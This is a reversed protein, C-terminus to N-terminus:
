ERAYMSQYSLCRGVEVWKYTELWSQWTLGDPLFKACTLKDLESLLEDRDGCWVACVELAEDFWERVDQGWYEQAFSKSPEKDDAFRGRMAKYVRSALKISINTKAYKLLIVDEFANLVEIPVKKSLTEVKPMKYNKLGHFRGCKEFGEPVEKQYAKTTYKLAYGFNDNHYKELSLGRVAFNKRAYEDPYGILEVWASRLKRVFALVKKWGLQKVGWAMVHFHPAGSRQFEMFWLFPMRLGLYKDSYRNMTKTWNELKEKLELGTFKRWYDRDGSMDKGPMTLTIMIEPQVELAELDKCRKALSRYAKSSYSDIESKKAALGPREEGEYKERVAHSMADEFRPSATSPTTDLHLYVSSDDLNHPMPLEHIQSARLSLAAVRDEVSQYKLKKPEKSPFLSHLLDIEAQYNSQNKTDTVNDLILASSYTVNTLTASQSSTTSENGCLGVDGVRGVSPTHPHSPTNKSSDPIYKQSYDFFDNGYSLKRATRGSTRYFQARQKRELVFVDQQKCVQGYSELYRNQQEIPMYTQQWESATVLSRVVLPLLITKEDPQFYSYCSTEDIIHSKKTLTKGDLTLTNKTDSSDKIHRTKPTPSADSDSPTVVKKQNLPNSIIETSRAAAARSKVVGSPIKVLSLSTSNSVQSLYCPNQLPINSYQSM